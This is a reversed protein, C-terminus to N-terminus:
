YGKNKETCVYPALETFIEKLYVTRQVSSITLYSYHKQGSHSSILLFCRGPKRQRGPFGIRKSWVVQLRM